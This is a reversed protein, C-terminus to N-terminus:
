DDDELESALVEANRADVILETTRGQRDRATVKYLRESERKIERLDTYGSRTLREALDSITLSDGAVSAPATQPAIIQGLAQAMTVSTVVLLTAAVSSIRMVARVEWAAKLQALM